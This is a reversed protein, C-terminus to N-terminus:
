AWSRSHRVPSDDPVFLLDLQATARDLPRRLLGMVDALVFGQGDLWGVVEAAEPNDKLTALTSVETIIVDVHDLCGAMGKLVALEFGQVDIKVLAPREFSGVPFLADFRRVPVEYFRAALDPGDYSELLTSGQLDPREEFLENAEFEGLAVAHVTAHKLRRTALGQLHRQAGRAPEILHFHASPFARYLEFTGQAVGIDFVTAPALGKMKLLDLAPRWGLRPAWLSPFLSKYERLADKIKDKIM